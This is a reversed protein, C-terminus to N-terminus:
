APGMSDLDEHDTIYNSSMYQTVGVMVRARLISPSNPNRQTQIHTKPNKKESNLAIKVFIAKFRFVM